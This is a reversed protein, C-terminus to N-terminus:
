TSTRAACCPWMAHRIKVHPMRDHAAHAGRVNAIIQSARLNETTPSAHFRLRITCRGANKNIEVSCEAAAVATFKHTFGKSLMPSLGFVNQALNTGRTGPDNPESRSM